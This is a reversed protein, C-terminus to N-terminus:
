KLRKMHFGGDVNIVEGTSFPLYGEAIAAVVRAVDSPQGWRNIPTFGEDILTDYKEKVRSTMDTEIVGPRIEYVNIGYEALRDAYITTMMSMGAKSICYEARSHSSAFASISGINVMKATDMVKSLIGEIMKNAVLQSLFFPGKLNVSMIHDYNEETTKLVDMRRQPAIGANNAMLDIRGNYEIASEVLKKRDSDNSIDAQVIICDVGNKRISEATEKAAQENSQYNLVISWKHKALELAIGKGIGRSAGTILAVKQNAM